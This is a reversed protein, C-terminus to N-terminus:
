AMFGHLNELRQTAPVRRGSFPGDGNELPNEICSELFCIAASKDGTKSVAFFDAETELKLRLSSETLQAAWGLWTMTLGCLLCHGLPLWHGPFLYKSDSMAAASISLIIVIAYLNLNYYGLRKYHGLFLHGLEHFYLFERIEHTKEFFPEGVVVLPNKGGLSFILSRDNKVRWLEVTHLGVTSRAAEWQPDKILESQPQLPENLFLMLVAYVFVILWAIGIGVFRVGVGLITFVTFSFFLGWLFNLISGARRVFIRQVSERIIALVIIEFFYREFTSDSPLGSLAHYPFISLWICTDVRVGLPPLRFRGVKHLLKKRMAERSFLM